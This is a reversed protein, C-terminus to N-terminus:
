SCVKGVALSEEVASAAGGGFGDGFSSREDFDDADPENAVSFQQRNILELWECFPELGALWLVKGPVIVNRGKGGSLGKKWL